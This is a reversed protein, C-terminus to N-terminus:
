YSVVYSISNIKNDSTETTSNNLCNWLFRQVVFGLLTDFSKSRGSDKIWAYDSLDLQFPISSSHELNIEVKEMIGRTLSQALFRDQTVAKDSLYAVRNEFM